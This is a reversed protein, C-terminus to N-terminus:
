KPTIGLYTLVGKMLETQVETGHVTEFPFGLVVLGYSKRYGIAAGFNNEEYRFIQQSGERPVIADPAEVAYIERSLDVNFSLIKDKPYITQHISYAKGSKAAHGTSWDFHLVKWAFKISASDEKPHSFLDTGVYAGSILLNGGQETYTQIAQQLSRPFTRFQVHHLSDGFAKPWHTEKEKGLILDVFKFDTLRVMSDIVAESSASCFSLGCDRLSLGHLFPYDFSNGAIPKGENDAYSAGHGPGDNSRFPSSKEFNFQEGTFGLEYRDPVGRDLGGIFGEMGNTEVAAPGSIRHFGNVILVPNDGNPQRCVAVIESPFSEGGDNLATIKFSYITGPKLNHIVAQPTDVIMGNDFGGDEIRTYVLYHTPTASPELADLRPKWKLLANGGADLGAVVHTVPLPQVVSPVNREAALFRLMGKYIARAVDFRFRPDLVFKMDLYNQHSLLELLLSPMNPRVAESYDANRLQRRQWAPDYRARIDDVVQTQVIDALDRNALRSVSDPFVASRRQDQISYISLTGITTDNDAIGADTHFALSLDVPIGLGKEDRKKNPGFPAGKLYNLYEARSQYDDRYDDGGGSLTYVLTDPMGAFQLFYRSGEVYKPRGSTKGNRAIVGMGGGFRAADAHITSGKDGSENTLVVSGSERDRGVAFRFTGLYIWTGGGIRQNVLFDTRGGLHHVTYHADTANAESFGYSIYVAYEGTEPILPVWAAAVTAVSDTLVTRHTGQRFPNVGPGYPPTGIAFGSDESQKWPNGRWVIESYGTSASDNDVIAENTQFDRERPIFVNAGAQELMPVLYPLVFSTPILDEVMQFLRPRQWEWRDLDRSYYWGHSNWLGITRGALGNGPMRPKSINRVVAPTKEARSLPLRLRDYQRFSERYFNPVLQEIPRRLTRVSLAYGDFTGDFYSEVQRYVERVTENRYPITSFADNFHVEVVKRTSDIRVTDVRTRSPLEFSFKKQAVDSKFEAIREAPAPRYLGVSRFLACGSLVFSSAIGVVILNRINMMRLRAHYSFPSSHHAPDVM